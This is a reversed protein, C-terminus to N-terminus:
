CQVQSNGIFFEASCNHCSNIRCTAEPHKDCKSIRCIDFSCGNLRYCDSNNGIASSAPFASNDMLIAEALPALPNVAKPQQQQQWRQQRGRTALQAAAGQALRLQNVFVRELIRVVQQQSASLTQIESQVKQLTKGFESLSKRILINPDNPSIPGKARVNSVTDPGALSTAWQTQGNKSLADLKTQIIRLFEFIQWMLTSQPSKSSAAAAQADILNFM